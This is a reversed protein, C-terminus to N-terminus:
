TVLAHIAQSLMTLYNLLQKYGEEIRTRNDPYRCFRELMKPTLHGFNLNEAQINLSPVFEIMFKNLEKFVSMNLSGNKVANIVKEMLDKMVYLNRSLEPMVRLFAEKPPVPATTDYVIDHSLKCFDMAAGNEVENMYKEHDSLVSFTNETSKKIRKIEALGFTVDDPWKKKIIKFVDEIVALICLCEDREGLFGEPRKTKELLFEFHVQDEASFLFTFVTRWYKLIGALVGQLANRDVKFFHWADGYAEDMEREFLPTVVDKLLQRAKSMLTHIETECNKYEKGYRQGLSRYRTLSKTTDSKSAKVKRTKGANILDPKLTLALSFRDHVVVNCAMAKNSLNRDNTLLILKERPISKQLTLCYDLIQDDNTKKFIETDAERPNQKHFRPHNSKFVAFIYRIAEKASRIVDSSVKKGHRKMNDLEQLAIWPIVFHPPGCGDVPTDKMEDIYKLDSILTNTDLVIYYSDLLNEDVWSPGNVTKTMVSSLDLMEVDDLSDSDSSKSTSAGVNFETSTSAVTEGVEPTMEYEMDSFESDSEAVVSSPLPEKDTSRPSFENDKQEKTLDFIKSKKACMELNEGGSLSFHKKNKSSRIADNKPFGSLEVPLSKRKPKNDKMNASLAKSSSLKASVGRVAFKIKNDILRSTLLKKKSATQALNSSVSDESKASVYTSLSKKVSTANQSVTLLSKQVKSSSTAKQSTAVKPSDTKSIAKVSKDSDSSRRLKFSIKAVKTTSADKMPKSIAPSKKSKKVSAVSIGKQQHATSPKNRVSAFKQQVIASNESIVPTVIAVAPTNPKLTDETSNSSIADNGKMRKLSEKKADSLFEIIKSKHFQLTSSIKKHATEPSEPEHAEITSNTSLKNMISTHKSMKIPSYELEPCEWTSCGTLTNFYYVRDPYHKSVKVIWGEPLSGKLESEEM